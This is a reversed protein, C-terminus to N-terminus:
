MTDGGPCAGLCAGGWAPVGQAPVEWGSVEGPCAGEWGSMGRPLCEELWVGRQAPVGGCITLSRVTHMRSSHMRTTTTNLSETEM